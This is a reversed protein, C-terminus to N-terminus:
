WKYQLFVFLTVSHSGLNGNRICSSTKAFSNTAGVNPSEHHLSDISTHVTNLIKIWVSNGAAANSGESWPFTLVLGLVLTHKLHIM